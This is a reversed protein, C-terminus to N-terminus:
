HTVRRRPSTAVRGLTRAFVRSVDALRQYAITFGNGAPAISPAAARTGPPNVQLPSDIALPTMPDIRQAFISDEADRWVLVFETGNWAADLDNLVAPTGVPWAECRVPAVDTAPTGDDRLMIRYLCAPGSALYNFERWIAALMGTGAPVFVIQDAAVRSWISNLRMVAGSDNVRAIYLKSTPPPTPSILCFCGRQQIWAVVFGSSTGLVRPETANEFTAQANSLVLPLADLVDGNETIRAAHVEYADALWAVLFNKGDFAVSLNEDPWYSLPPNAESAIVFPDGIPDGSSSVRRGFVRFPGFQRWVVLYASSGRAVAPATQPFNMSGSLTSETGGTVSGEVAANRYGEIWISFPPSAPAIKPFLQLAPSFTINQSPANAIDDFGNAARVLVNSQGPQINTWAVIQETRSSAFLPPDNFGNTMSDLVLPASDLRAGNPSIRYAHLALTWTEELPWQVTVLFEHGDWGAAPTAIGSISHPVESELVTMPAVVGGNRRIVEYSATRAGQQEQQVVVVIRGDDSATGSVQAWQTVDFLPKETVSGDATKITFLWVTQICPVNGPCVTRMTLFAYDGGPLVFPQAVRGIPAVLKTTEITGDRSLISIDAGDPSFTHVLLANEGNSAMAAAPGGIALEKPNGVLDGDDNLKQAFSHGNALTYVLLYSSGTWTMRGSAADFLKTGIPNLPHGSADMRSAYLALPRWVNPDLINRHDSWLALFDRGNSAVSSVTRTYPASGITMRGLPAEKGLTWAALVPLLASIM